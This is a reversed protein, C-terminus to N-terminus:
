AIPTTARVMTAPVTAARLTARGRDRQGLSRYPVPKPSAEPSVLGFDHIHDARDHRPSVRATQAVIPPGSLRRLRVARPRPKRLVEASM